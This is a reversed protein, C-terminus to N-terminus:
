AGIADPVTPLKMVRTKMQSKGHGGPLEGVVKPRSTARTTTVSGKQPASPGRTAGRCASLLAVAAIICSTAVVAHAGGMKVRPHSPARDFYLLAMNPPM